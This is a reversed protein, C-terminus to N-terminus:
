LGGMMLLSPGEQGGPGDPGGPGRPADADDDDDDGFPDDGRPAWCPARGHVM